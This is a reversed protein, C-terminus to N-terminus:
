EDEDPIDLPKGSYGAFATMARQLRADAEKADGYSTTQAERHKIDAELRTLELKAQATGLKLFHVTVQSSATGNLLQKEALDYAASVLQMERAEASAVPPLKQQEDPDQAKRRPM